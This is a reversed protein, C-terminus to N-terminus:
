QAKEAPAAPTVVPTDQKKDRNQQASPPAGKATDTANQQWPVVKVAAGPKIKQLGEVVVRDGVKLGDTILWTNGQASGTVVPRVAVKDDAGVVMVTAGDAGRTVAQQPVSIAEERIGQELKARVYMGPLLSRKPNPFEARLSVAGTSEDVSLDSFLLKGPLPYPTGDEMVLTVAAKGQGVSQLEGNALARQLKLLDTSSQTLNVYIPDLQQITALQTAEGQGVLAGETVLARGIRGSIPATVRTYGLNLQAITRTAKASAVDAAAQKQATSVDEYEQKSVANIAMLPKYRQLKLNAQALNAESKALAAQTSEYTAQYSAPDIRFLLAGAKVESGEVFERKQVIGAARARVQAIRTAELRGPLENSITLRQSAVTMVSVEAAPAGAGPAAGAQPKESCGAFLSLVALVAALRAFRQHSTM